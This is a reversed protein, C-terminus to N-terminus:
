LKHHDADFLNIQDHIRSLVTTLHSNDNRWESPRNPNLPHVRRTCLPQQLYDATQAPALGLGGSSAGQCRGAVLHKLM